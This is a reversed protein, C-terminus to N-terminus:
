TSFGHLLLRRTRVRRRWISIPRASRAPRWSWVSISVSCTSSRAAREQDGFRRAHPGHEIEHRADRGGVGVHEDGALVARAFLQDRLPQVGRRYARLAGKGRDVEASKGFADELALHEAVHPAREGVGLGVAGATELEGVPAREKEVLDGIDGHALLGLQEAHQLRPSTSRTPDDRVFRTSTRMMAAVLASRRSSTVAAPEALIQQEADVRDLDCERWETVAALVDQGEGAMEEVLMREAVAPTTEREIGAGRLGQEGVVPGAVDPLEIVGHLAAHQERLARGDAGAIQAGAAPAM